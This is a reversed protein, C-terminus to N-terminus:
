FNEFDGDSTDGMNLDVGKSTHHQSMKAVKPHAHQAAHQVSARPAAPAKRTTKKMSNNDIRFFSMTDRMQDAQSALEESSTAMEEAAAANQQTVQNLQQIASNVQEAGSAQESSAAAIEQVLRATKQIDPVIESLLKGSKEAIAVSNRSTEDIERAAEQSRAALKRVEEAVVAFGKGHEGARAAEVAANLALINTQRAIESIITIKEAINKMSAVTQEVAANGEAIDDSAKLSIKETQKANDTNQQINSAMEEMSSSVEEASSAQESSGQSMEQSTSSLEQSASAINEAGEFVDKVIQKLKNVMNQLANALKGIEDQQNILAHDIEVTLDGKAITSAFDVGKVIGITISRTIIIALIVGLILAFVLGFIMIANSRSIISVAENVINKTGTVAAEATVATKDTAMNGAGIRGQNLTESELWSKLYTEVAVSYDQAAKEIINLQNLNIQQRTIQRLQNFYTFSKEFDSLASELAQPKRQAQAKFNEVRVANGADIINNILTIKDLRDRTTNGANIERIAAENQSNLFDNCNQLYQGAAKDMDQRAQAMQEVVKITKNLLENYKAVNEDVEKTLGELKELKEAKDALAYAKKVGEQVDKLKQQGETLFSSEFTYNYARIAYMAWQLNSQIDVAIEVEPVYENALYETETRITTMNMIAMVGLAIAIIILLGFGIGLKGGIKINKWNM